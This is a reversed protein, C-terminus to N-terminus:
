HAKLGAMSTATRQTTLLGKHSSSVFTPSFVGRGQCSGFLRAVVLPDYIGQFEPDHCWGEQLQEGRGKARVGWFGNARLGLSGGRILM